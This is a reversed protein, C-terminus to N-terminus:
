NRLNLERGSREYVNSLHSRLRATVLWETVAVGCIVMAGPNTADDIPQHRGLTGAPQRVQETVCLVKTLSLAAARKKRRLRLRDNSFLGIRYKM